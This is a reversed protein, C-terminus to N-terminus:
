SGPSTVLLMCPAAWSTCPTACSISVSTDVVVQLLTTDTTLRSLVEGTRATEFFAPSLRVVRDFVARRLDAIAREGVWSLLMFRLYLMLALVAITCLLSIVIGDLRAADGTAFGADVLHRLTFGIGLLGAAGVTLAAMAGFFRWRYPRVFRWLVALVGLSSGRPRDSSRAQQLPSPQRM